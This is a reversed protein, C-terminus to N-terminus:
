FTGYNDTLSLPAAIVGAPHMSQSINTNILGDFYYFLEKYTERTKDPNAEYEEKIKTIVPLAYPSDGKHSKKWITDLARGIEDLM